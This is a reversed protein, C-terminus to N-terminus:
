YLYSCLKTQRLFASTIKFITVAMWRTLRITKASSFFWFNTVLKAILSTSAWLIQNSWKFVTCDANFLFVALTVHQIDSNNIWPLISIVTCFWTKIINDSNNYYISTPVFSSPSVHPSQKLGDELKVQPFHTGPRSHTGSSSAAKNGSRGDNHLTGFPLVNSLTKLIRLCFYM